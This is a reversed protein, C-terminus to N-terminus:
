CEFNAANPLWVSEFNEDGHNNELLENSVREYISAGVESVTFGPTTDESERRRDEAPPKLPVLLDEDDYEAFM